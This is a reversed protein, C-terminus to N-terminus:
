SRKRDQHGQWYEEIKWFGGEIEKSFIDKIRKIVMLYQCKNFSSWAPFMRGKWGTTEGARSLEEKFKSNIFEPNEEQLRRLLLRDIPPHLERINKNKYSTICIFRAKLYCNVLKAAVGYTFKKKGSKKIVDTCCKQHWMDIDSIKLIEEITFVQSLGVTELIDKGEKVSFRHGKSASASTSAAWAAFRHRHEEISYVM